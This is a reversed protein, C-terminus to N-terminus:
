RGLPSSEKLTPERTDDVIDLQARVTSPDFQKGSNRQLEELTAWVGMAKRYPRDSTMAHFSNCAFVIRRALPIHEGSLGNPYGKGAWREHEARIIPALYALGEILTIRREGITPHEQMLEKDGKDLPGPKHLVSDPVGIKGVDHLLAAQEFDREEESLGMWRPV